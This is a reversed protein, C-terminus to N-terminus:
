KNQENPIEKLEVEIKTPMYYHVMLRFAINYGILLIIVCTLFYMAFRKLRFHKVIDKSPMESMLSDVAEEATGFEHYVMDITVGETEQCYEYVGQSFRKVIERRKKCTLPLSKKINHLYKRVSKKMPNRNM